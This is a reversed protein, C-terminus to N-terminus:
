ACCRCALYSKLYREIDLFTEWEVFPINERLCYRALGEKAFVLNAERVPCRDTTGDGIYIIPNYGQERANVLRLTKCHGCLGCEERTYPFEISAKKESFTINNAYYPIDEIDCKKFILDIFSKFGGSLVILDISHVKVFKVFAKFHPDIEIDDRLRTRVEEWSAHLTNFEETLSIRTGIEGSKVRVEIKRWEPDGFLDLIHVLSDKTTITGDFDSFIIPKKQLTTEDTMYM